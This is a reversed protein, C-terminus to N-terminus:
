ITTIKKFTVIINNKIQKIELRTKISNNKSSCTLKWKTKKFMVRALDYILWDQTSKGSQKSRLLLLHMWKHGFDVFFFFFNILLSLTDLLSYFVLLFFWGM